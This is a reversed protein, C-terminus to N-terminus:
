EYNKIYFSQKKTRCNFEQYFQNESPKTLFRFCTNKFNCNTNDCLTFDSM